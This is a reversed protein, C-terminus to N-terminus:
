KGPRRACRRRARRWRAGRRRLRPHSDTRKRLRWPIGPGNGGRVNFFSFAALWPTECGRPKRGSDTFHNKTRRPRLSCFLSTKFPKLLNHEGRPCFEGTRKRLMVSDTVLGRRTRSIQLIIYYLIIYYLIIYVKRHWPIWPMAFHGAAM